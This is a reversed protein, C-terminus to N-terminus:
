WPKEFDSASFQHNRLIYYTGSLKKRLQLPATRAFFRYALALPTLIAFFVFALIIYSLFFGVAHMVAHWADAIKGASYDSILATFGLAAAIWLFEERAFIFYLILLGMFLGIITQYQKKHM